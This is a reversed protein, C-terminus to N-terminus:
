CDYITIYNLLGKYCLCIVFKKTCLNFYDYGLYAYFNIEHLFIYIPYSCSFINFNYNHFQIALSKRYYNADM